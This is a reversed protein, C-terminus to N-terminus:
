KNLAVKIKDPNELLAFVKSTNSKFDEAYKVKVPAKGPL